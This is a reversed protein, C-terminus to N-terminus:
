PPCGYNKISREQRRGGHQKDISRQRAHLKTYFAIQASPTDIADIVYDIKDEFLTPATEKDIYKNVTNIQLHPNIANCRATWSRAKCEGVNNQHAILQRNINSLQITDNDVLTLKGIGARCLQEVAYGGVGGLGAVLVHSRSLTEISKEGFLLATRERWDNTPM